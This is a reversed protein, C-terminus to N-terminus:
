DDLPFAASLDAGSICFCGLMKEPLEEETRGEVLYGMHFSHKALVSQYSYLTQRALFAWKGINVDIELVEPLLDKVFNASETVLVPKGNYGHLMSPLEALSTEPLQGIAKLTAGDRKSVQNQVLRQWLKLQGSINGSSLEARAAQSLRFYAVLACGPPKQGFGMPNHIPLLANIVLIRPIGWAADWVGEHQDKWWSFGNARKHSILGPLGKGVDKKVVDVGVCNYFSPASPEKKQHVTGYGSARVSFEKSDLDTWCLNGTKFLENPVSNFPSPSIEPEKPDAATRSRPRSEALTMDAEPPEAKSAPPAVQNPAMGAPRARSEARGQKAGAVSSLYPSRALQSEQRAGEDLSGRDLASERSTDRPAAASASSSATSTQLDASSSQCTADVTEGPSSQKAQPAGVKGSSCGM